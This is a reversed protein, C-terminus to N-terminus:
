EADWPLLVRERHARAGHRSRILGPRAQAGVCFAPSGPAGKGLVQACVVAVAHEWEASSFAHGSKASTPSGGADPLEHRGM